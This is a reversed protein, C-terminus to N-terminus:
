EKKRRLSAHSQEVRDDDADAEIRHQSGTGKRQYAASSPGGAAAQQPGHFRQGVSVDEGIDTPLLEDDIHPLVEDAGSVDTDERQEQDAEMVQRAEEAWENWEQVSEPRVHTQLYDLFAEDDDLHRALGTFLYKHDLLYRYHVAKDVESLSTRNLAQHVAREEKLGIRGQFWRHTVTGEVNGM